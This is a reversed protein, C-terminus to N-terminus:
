LLQLTWTGELRVDSTKDIAAGRVVRAVLTGDETLLGFEVIALGNAEAYDLAWIFRVQEPQPHDFGLLNRDYGGTLAADTPLPAAARTGVGFRSIIRGPSAAGLRQAITSRVGNVVLNNEREHVVLEDGRWVRLEFLGSVRLPLQDRVKM